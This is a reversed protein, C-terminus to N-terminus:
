LVEGDIVKPSTKEFKLQSDAGLNITVSFKEGTAEMGVGQKTFGALDRILKGLEIKSNLTESQSNLRSYAEPLWEEIMAASKLKVREHTNLSSNWLASESELLQIFRPHNQITEWTNQNIQSAELITELPLIGMGLERALRLLITESLAPAPLTSQTM